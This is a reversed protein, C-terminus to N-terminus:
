EIKHLNLETLRHAVLDTVVDEQRQHRRAVGDRGAIM